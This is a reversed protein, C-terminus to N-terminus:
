HQFGIGFASIHDSTTGPNIKGAMQRGYSRTYRRRLPKRLKLPERVKFIRIQARLDDLPPVTTQHLYSSLTEKLGLKDVLSVIQEVSDDMQTVMAAYGARPFPHKLYGRHVYEEEPIIKKYM